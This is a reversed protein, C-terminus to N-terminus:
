RKWGDSKERYLAAILNDNTDRQVYTYVKLKGMLEELALLLNFLSVFVLFALIKM